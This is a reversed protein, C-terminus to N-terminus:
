GTHTKDLDIAVFAANGHRLIRLAVAHHEHAATRIAAVAAAPGDVAATGVGVVVDGAEIGAAEAPSGPEVAAVVAGKSEAPLGLQDSLEPSLPQLALGVRPTEAGPPSARDATESDPQAAITVTEAAPAGNRILAIKANAGPKLAAIERALDRPDAVTEGDVATIVDGPKLGAKAAPSRPEVSAILAGKDGGQDAPLALAARLAPAVPQAAVGLYGRTVHGTTEIDAVVTKVLNAPIAFGIGISGGSPSLIATNVGVVTGDQTFLPGGSNGQNIPADVQIFNDYPGAGIDRGKASVIGATVSGGLGFPNGMAIVWQGPKVASSDGLTVYPLPHEAKVRLVALDTRADRGVVEAPLESGDSLTVTVSKAEHVVHNNTVIIGDPSVIFGSGRAEIMHRHAPMGDPTMGNPAMSFPSPMPGEDDAASAQLRTTISVVAPKVRSVLDSFDPLAAANAHAPAAQLPGTQAPTTEGAQAPSREALAYGGLATGALLAAALLSGLRPQRRRMLGKAAPTAGATQHVHDQTSM